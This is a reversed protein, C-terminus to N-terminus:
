NLAFTSAVYVAGARAAVDNIGKFSSYGPLKREPQFARILSLSISPLRVPIEQVENQKQWDNKEHSQDRSIVFLEIDQNRFNKTHPVLETYHMMGIVVCKWINESYYVQQTRCLM